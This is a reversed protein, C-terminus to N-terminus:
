KFLWVRQIVVTSISLLQPSFSNSGCSKMNHYWTLNDILYCSSAYFIPFSIPLVKISASIADKDVLVIGDILERSIRFNEDGVQKVAVGDAFTGVKELKVVQDNHLASAM